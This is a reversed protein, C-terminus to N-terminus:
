VNFRDLKDVANHRGVDERVLLLRGGSDFLGAAHIGGTRSFDQQVMRLTPALRHVVDPTLLSQGVPIPYKRRVSIAAISKKGCVACSSGVFLHRELPKICCRFALVTGNVRFRGQINSIDRGIEL